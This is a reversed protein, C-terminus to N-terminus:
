TGEHVLTRLNTPVRATRLGAAPEAPTILCTLWLSSVGIASGIAVSMFRHAVHLSFTPNVVKGLIHGLVCSM